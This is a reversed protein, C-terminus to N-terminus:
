AVVGPRSADHNLVERGVVGEGGVGRDGELGGDGPAVRIVEGDSGPVAGAHAVGDGFPFLGDEGGQFGGGGGGPTGVETPMFGVGVDVGFGSGGGGVGVFGEKGRGCGDGGGEGLALVGVGGELVVEFGVVVGAWGAGEGEDGSGGDGLDGGGEGGGVVGTVQDGRLGEVEVLSGTVDGGDGGELAGGDGEFEGEVLGKGFAGDVDM